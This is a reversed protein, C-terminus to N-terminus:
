EIREKNKTYVLERKNTEEVSKINRGTRAVFEMYEAMSSTSAQSASLVLATKFTSKM